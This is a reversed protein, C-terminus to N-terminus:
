LRFPPLPRHFPPRQLRLRAISPVPPQSRSAPQPLSSPKSPLSPTARGSISMGQKDGRLHVSVRSPKDTALQRMVADAVAAIAAPVVMRVADFSMTHDLSFAAAAFHEILRQLLLLLELQQAHLMPTRWVCTREAAPGDPKPMPLLATFTHQVLAAILFTTNLM